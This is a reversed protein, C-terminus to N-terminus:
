SAAPLTDAPDADGAPLSPQPRPVQEQSPAERPQVTPAEAGKRLSSEMPSDSPACPM